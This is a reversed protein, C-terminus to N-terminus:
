SILEHAGEKTNNRNTFTERETYQVDSLWFMSQDTYILPNIGFGLHHSKLSEIKIFPKM